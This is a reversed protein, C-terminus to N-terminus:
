KIIIENCNEGAEFAYEDRSEYPAPAMTSIPIALGLAESVCAITNATFQGHKRCKSMCSEIEELEDKNIIGGGYNGVAEFVDQVTVNKGKHTGPLQVEM